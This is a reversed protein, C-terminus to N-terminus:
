YVKELYCKECFVKEPRSAEMSSNIAKKCNSCNREFLRRPSRLKIRDRHRCAPCKRPIPINEKRYYALEQTIIKFNKRCETCALTENVISDSVDQIHDPVSCSQPQSIQEKPSEYWTFGQAVAEEKSLPFYEDVVTENYGWPSLSAPFFEGWEGKKKMHEIIKAKLAEYAEKSYQQNLICYQKHKLGICGFLNSSNNCMESYFSEHCDHSAMCFASHTMHLTSILDYSLEPKYLSYNLDQCDKADLVDYLYKSDECNSANFSNKTNKCNKLNDGTCDECNLLYANRYIINATRFELWKKQYEENKSFSGLNMDSIIKEYEEKSYTHNFLHYEKQRLNGSFRCNKSGKLDYCFMSDSSDDCYMSHRLHYGNYSQITEYCLTSHYAFTCDVCNKSYKTFLNFYCDENAEGAIDLYCSKDDGCYNCFYSNECNVIDIGLRPVARQLQAFQEFFSRSFDFAKGYSMPDWSDSYWTDPHYVTYPKEPAYISVFEKGTKDCKRRYFTRDNRWALRRQHRCDPCLTPSPVQLKGYFRQDEPTVEYQTQCKRCTM